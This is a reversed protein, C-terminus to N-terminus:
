CRQRRRERMRVVAYGSFGSAVVIVLALPASIWMRVQATPDAAYVSVLGVMWGVWMSVAVAGCVTAVRSDFRDIFNRM